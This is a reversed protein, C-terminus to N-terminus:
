CQLLLFVLLSSATSVSNTANASIADDSAWQPDVAGGLVVLIGQEGVPVWVVAANSRGKTQSPLAPKLWQEGYQAKMDVQIMHQSTINATSNAEFSPIATFSNGFPATLGSFYWAKNESPANVAAGHTVLRTIGKPLLTNGFGPRFSGIGEGFSYKSYRVISQPSPETYQGDIVTVGGGYLLFEGDNALMGGGKYPAKFALDVADRSESKLIANRILIDTVNTTKNFPTSLDYALIAGDPNVISILRQKSLCLTHSVNATKSQNSQAAQKEPPFCWNAAM